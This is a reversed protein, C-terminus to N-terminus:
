ESCQVFPDGTRGESCSCIPLHNIIECKANLGCPGDVCPNMCKQSICAEKRSCDSHTSCELGVSIIEDFSNIKKKSEILIVYFIKVVLEQVNLSLIALTTQLVLADHFINSLKM